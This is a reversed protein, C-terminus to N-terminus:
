KQSPPYGTNILDRTFRGETAPGTYKSTPHFLTVFADRSNVEHLNTRGSPCKTKAMRTKLDGHGEFLLCAPPLIYKSPFLPIPKTWGAFLTNGQVHVQLYAKKFLHSNQEAPTSTFAARFFAFGTPNDGVIAVPTYVTNRAPELCLYIEMRNEVGFSSKENYHCVIIFLTDPLNFQPPPHIFAVGRSGYYVTVDKLPDKAHIKKANNIKTVIDKETMIGEVPDGQYMMTKRYERSFESDTSAPTPPEIIQEVSITSPSLADIWIKQLMIRAKEVYESDNSFLVDEFLPTADQKESNLSTHKFQFLNQEDIITTNLFGTPVHKVHCFQSLQQTINKNESAMPVMIKILMGKGSWDKLLAMNKELEILGATSTIMMIEDKASRITKDYKEKAEDANNIVYTKSVPVGFELESIREQIGTSKQWFDEFVTTFAKVLSKCNTWLCADKYDAERNSKPKIFFLIEEEDRIVLEPLTSTLDPTRGEFSIKAKAIEELFRKAVGLNQESLETIARFQLTSKLKKEMGADFLGFQDARLLGTVTTITSLQNIAESMMQLIKAYIPGRGEIINFKASEDPTEDISITQWNSLIESKNEQIRQAEAVKTKIFIDVVKDFSVASFIAPHELTANVIGKSQLNKLSRYLQQKQIGLKESLEYGKQPGRKALYIYVKCDVRTLKFGLLTKVVQEQSM